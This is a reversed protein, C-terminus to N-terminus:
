CQRFILGSSSKFMIKRRCASVSQQYSKDYKNCHNRYDTMVICITHTFVSQSMGLYCVIYDLALTNAVTTAPSTARFQDFVAMNLNLKDMIDVFMRWDFPLDNMDRKPPNLEMM